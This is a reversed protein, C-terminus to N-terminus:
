LRWPPTFLRERTNQPNERFALLRRAHLETLRKSRAPAKVDKMFDLDALTESTLPKGARWTEEAFSLIRRTQESVQGLVAVVQDGSETVVQVSHTPEIADRQEVALASWNFSTFAQAFTYLTEPSDFRYAPYRHELAPDQAIAQTLLPGLEEAVSLTVARVGTFDFRLLRGPQQATLWLRM